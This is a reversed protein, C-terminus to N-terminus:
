QFWLKGYKKFYKEKLRELEAHEGKNVGLVDSNEIRWITDEIRQRLRKKATAIRYVIIICVVIIVLVLM